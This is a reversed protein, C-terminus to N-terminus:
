SNPGGGLTISIVERLPAFPFQRLGTAQNTNFQEKAGRRPIRSEVVKRLKGNIKGRRCKKVLKSLVGSVFLDVLGTLVCANERRDLYLRNALQTSPLKMPLFRRVGDPYLYGIEGTKFRCGPSTGAIVKSCEAAPLVEDHSM